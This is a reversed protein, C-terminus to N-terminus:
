QGAVPVQAAAPVEAAALAQAAPDRGIAAQAALAQAAPVQAARPVNAAVAARFRSGPPCLAAVTHADAARDVDTLTRLSCVRLGRARLAALTEAGTTATSTAIGALVAAHRADRLGLTWWGGDSAPGLVADPGGPATLRRFADDLDQTSLQPTDMGILVTPRGPGDCDLFAHALRFGLTAGRQARVMWGTPPDCPGDVALIRRGARSEAVVDLTDALAAAAVAAAQSPTCPPCLRTKVRGAVPAKALVIVQPGSM